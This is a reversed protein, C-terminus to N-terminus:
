TLKAGCKKCFKEDAKFATGCKACFKAEAPSTLTAGCKPCFKAGEKLPAGCQNCFRKKSVAQTSPSQGTKNEFPITALNFLIQPLQSTAISTVSVRNSDLQVALLSLLSRFFAIHSRELSNNQRTFVKIGFFGIFPFANLGISMMRSDLIGDKEILGQNRAEDLGNEVLQNTWAADGPIAVFGAPAYWDLANEVKAEQLLKNISDATVKVEIESQRELAAKLQSERYLDLMAFFVPLISAEAEFSFDIAKKIPPNAIKEVLLDTMDQPTLFYSLNNGSGSKTYSVLRDSGALSYVHSTNYGNPSSWRLDIETGPNAIANLFEMCGATPRNDADLLGAKQLQAVAGPAPSNAAIKALPSNDGPKLGALNFLAAFESDSLTAMVRQEKNESM